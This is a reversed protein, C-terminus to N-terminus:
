RRPRLCSNNPRPTAPSSGSRDSPTPSAPTFGVAGGSGPFTVNRLGYGAKTFSAVTLNKGAAGAVKAFIALYQCAEPVSVYTTDTSSAAAQPSTPNVPATITDSPYAKHVVAACKQVAPDQWQQYLSPVATATLLHDLYANGNASEAYSLLASEDSAIYLPKYTSQNDLLACPWTTSGSGGVGVVVSM